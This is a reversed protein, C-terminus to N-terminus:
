ESIKHCIEKIFDLEEKYRGVFSEYKKHAMPELSYKYEKNKYAYAIYYKNNVNNFYRGCTANKFLPSKIDDKVLKKNMYSDFIYVRLVILNKRKTDKSYIASFAEVNVMNYTGSIVQSIDFDQALNDLKLADFAEYDEKKYYNFTLDDHELSNFTSNMLSVRKAHFKKSYLKLILALLIISGFIFFVVAYEYVFVSLLVGTIILALWLIFNSILVFKVEFKLKNFEKM